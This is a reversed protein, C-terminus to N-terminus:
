RPRQAVVSSEKTTATWYAGWIVEHRDAVKRLFEGQMPKGRSEFWEAIDRLEACDAAVVDGILVPESMEKDESTAGDEQEQGLDPCWVVYTRM